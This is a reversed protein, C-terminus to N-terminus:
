VGPGVIGVEPQLHTLGASNLDVARPIQVGLLCIGLHLVDDDLSDAPQEIMLTARQEHPHIVATLWETQISIERREPSFAIYVSELEEEPLEEVDIERRRGRLSHANPEFRDVAPLNAKNGHRRGCLWNEGFRRFSRTDLDGIEPDTCPVCGFLQVSVVHDCILAIM